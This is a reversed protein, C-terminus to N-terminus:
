PETHCSNVGDGGGKDMNDEALCAPKNMKGMKRRKQSIRGAYGKVQLSQLTGLTVLIPSSRDAATHLMETAFAGHM